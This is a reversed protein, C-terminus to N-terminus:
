RVQPQQQQQQQGQPAAGAGAPMVRIILANMGGGKTPDFAVQADAGRQVDAISRTDNGILVRTRGDVTFSMARGGPTQIAVQTPSAQTVSGAVTQLGENGGAMSSQARQAQQVGEKLHQSTQQQLQQAKAREQEEQAQARTLQDQAQVVAAHSAEVRRQQEGLAKQEEAARQFSAQSREAATPEPPPPPAAATEKKGHSCSTLAAALLLGAAAVARSVSARM